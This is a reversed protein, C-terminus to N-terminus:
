AADEPVSEEVAIEQVDVSRDRTWVRGGSDLDVRLFGNRIDGVTGSIRDGINV